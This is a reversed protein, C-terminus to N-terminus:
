GTTWQGFSCEYCEGEADVSIGDPYEQGSWIHVSSAKNMVVGAEDPAPGVVQSNQKSSYMPALSIKEGM